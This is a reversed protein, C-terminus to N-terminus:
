VLLGFTDDPICLTCNVNPTTWRFGCRVHRRRSVRRSWVRNTNRLGFALTEFAPVSNCFYRRSSLILPTECCIHLKRPVLYIVIDVYHICQQEIESACPVLSWRVGSWSVNKCARSSAASLKLGSKAKLNSVIM